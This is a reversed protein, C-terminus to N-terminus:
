EMNMRMGEAEPERLSKKGKCWEFAGFCNLGMAVTGPLLARLGVEEEVGYRGGVVFLYFLCGAVTGSM